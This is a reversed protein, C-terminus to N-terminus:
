KKEDTKDAQHSIRALHRSQTLSRNLIIIPILGSLVIVLASLSAQELLEDSAYQYVHTALTDFNFPRLVLTAPLEKMCDVFVLLLAAVIGGRLLPLHFKVLTERATYGLSRAAMDMTPTVKTMSSEVSGFAVALFRIVYALLIAFVTGSFLLGLDYGFFKESLGDLWRDLSALPILVGLALIVGPLAYGMSTLRVAFRNFWHLSMWRSYTLIVAFLTAVLAAILSLSISNFFLVRFEATWSEAFYLVSYYLLLSSPVFFGFVVPLLCLFVALWKQRGRLKIIPLHRFRQGQQFYRQQRRSIRELWVLLMVFTLAVTSIQAAGGLNNMNLWVDFIGTTFTQVAFYDVTGFDNLTEMLALTLGLVISPRALPLAIKFFTYVQGRGLVRSSELMSPSLELFGARATVYVYPYLVLSMVFIAGPLTRIDFFWYDRASVWGFLDRLFGQVPGSFELLDTYAYAIVYAPMAIPVILLWEFLKKAPFEYMTVFWATAVGILLVGVSVGLMLLLSNIVYRPLVTSILHPWINEKPFFSMALISVVPIVVLLSLGVVAVNWPNVRSQTNQMSIAQEVQQM